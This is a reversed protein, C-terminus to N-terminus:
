LYILLLFVMVPFLTPTWGRLKVCWLVLRPLSGTGFWLSLHGAGLCFNRDKTLLYQDQLRGLHPLPLCSQTQTDKPLSQVRQAERFINTRLAWPLTPVSLHACLVVVLRRDEGLCLGMHLCPSRMASEASSKELVCGPEGELCAAWVAGSCGSALAGAAAGTGPMARVAAPLAKHGSAVPCCASPPLAHAVRPGRHLPGLHLSPSPVLLYLSMNLTPTPLENYFPCLHVRLPVSSFHLCTTLPFAACPVRNIFFLLSGQPSLYPPPGVLM